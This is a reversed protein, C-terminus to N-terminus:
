PSPAAAGMGHSGLQMAGIEGGWWTPRTWASSSSACRPTPTIRSPAPSRGIPNAGATLGDDTIKVVVADRKV